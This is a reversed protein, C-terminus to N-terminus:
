LLSLLAALNTRVEDIGMIVGSISQSVTPAVFAAPALPFQTPAAPAPVDGLFAAMAGGEVVGNVFDPGGQDPFKGRWRNFWVFVIDTLLGSRVGAVKGSWDAIRDDDQAVLEAHVESVNNLLEQISVSLGPFTCIRDNFNFSYGDTTVVAM